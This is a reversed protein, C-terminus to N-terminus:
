KPSKQAYLSLYYKFLKDAVAKDEEGQYRDPHIELAAKKREQKDFSLESTEQQDCDKNPSEKPSAEKTRSADRKIFPLFHQYIQNLAAFTNEIEYSNISINFYIRFIINSSAAENFKEIMEQYRVGIDKKTAANKIATIYTLAIQLNKLPVHQKPVTALKTAWGKLTEHTSEKVGFDEPGQDQSSKEILGKIVDILKELNAISNEDTSLESINKAYKYKEFTLPSDKLKWIYRARNKIEQFILKAIQTIKICLDSAREFLIKHYSAPEPATIAHVM